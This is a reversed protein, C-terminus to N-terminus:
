VGKYQVAIMDTGSIIEMFFIEMIEYDATSKHICGIKM